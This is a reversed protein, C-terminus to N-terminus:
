VGGPPDPPQVLTFPKAPPKAAGRQQQSLQRVAAALSSSFASLHASLPEIAEDEDAEGVLAGSVDAAGDRIADAIILGQLVSAQAAILSRKYAGVEIHTVARVLKKMQKPPLLSEKEPSWGESPNEEDDAEHATRELAAIGDSVEGFAMEMIVRSRRAVDSAYDRETPDELSGLDDPIEPLIESEDHEGPM